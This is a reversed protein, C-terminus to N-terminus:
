GAPWACRKWRGRPGSAERYTQQEARVGQQGIQYRAAERLNPCNECSRGIDQHNPAQWTRGEYRVVCGLADNELRFLFFFWPVSHNKKRFTKDKSYIREIGKLVPTKFGHTQPSEMRTQKSRKCEKESFFGTVAYKTFAPFQFIPINPCIDTFM